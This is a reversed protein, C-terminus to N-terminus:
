HAMRNWAIITIMYTITFQPILYCFIPSLSLKWTTNDLCIFVVTYFIVAIGVGVLAAYTLSVNTGNPKPCRIETSM